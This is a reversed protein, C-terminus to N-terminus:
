KSHVHLRTAADLCLQTYLEDISNVMDSVQFNQKVFLYGTEAMEKMEDPHNLAYLMAEAFQDVNRAEVLLGTKKHIVLEPVGEVATAVVPIKCCLAETISRGLGEYISSLAFLDLGHLIENVDHRYGLLSIHQEIQHAKVFSLMEERLPGDGVFIFHSNKVEKVVQVIAELFTFPSKQESFRGIFGVLITDAPLNLEKHLDKKRSSSFRDVDIGSYINTIKEAKAMELDVIKKLNLTSVTILHTTKINMIKEITIYINRKLWNMFDHFPFGHVTHIVIPTGALFSAIRGIVGPKTSHTHVIDFKENRILKTLEFLAKWDNLINVDRQLTPIDYIKCDPIQLARDRYEGTMNCAFAVEYKERDLLELTYLTNDQAGGIPLDTIIHLVRIKNKM